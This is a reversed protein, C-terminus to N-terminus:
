VGKIPQAQALLATKDSSSKSSGFFYQIVCGFSTALTGFLLYVVGNSDKPIEKFVLLAVLCFFGMVMIWALLYLNVDRKGTAKTVDVERQRASAVDALRMQEGQLILKQLDLEHDLEFQKMKLAAQPDTQIAAALADPKNECGFLSALLGGVTGGAPGGLATGVLPLAVGAAKELIPTIDSWKMDM